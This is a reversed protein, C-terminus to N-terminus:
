NLEKDLYFKGGTLSIGVILGKETLQYMHVGSTLTMAGAYAGGSATTKAAALVHAGAEWGSTVYRNFEEATEFILVLRFRAVGIGLGPELEFMKMFTERKTANNVAIGSGKESGAYVIHFGVDSFVAYGASKAVAQQAGPHVKYLQELTERAIKREAARHEEKQAPTLAATQCAQLGLCLLV